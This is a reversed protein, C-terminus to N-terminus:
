VVGKMIFAAVEEPYLPRGDYKLFSTTPVFGCEMRLLKGLQGTSNNELLLYPKQHALHPQVAPINLPFLHTFHLYAIRKQEHLLQQAALAAGKTSGWGVVIVEAEEPSGFWTPAAWDQELYTAVKRARKNVQSIRVAASESTHSDPLHEYSNAQYFTGAFGPTLRPSIGDESEAYRLYPLPAATITKGQRVPRNFIANLEETFFSQHSESLYKDSLVIVPTQYVEALDFAKMTLEIMEQCDGPALIIKPFEGHGAFTAFLLDGQETWTPMGTAPGPRQAVFVVLPLEAVGAYSLTEAMLAFGGGSTGTAARVGAFSAGLVENVVGIEDEAHRVVMQSADQWAALNSLVGSSPSMPYAAFLRCDAAVAGLAFADNGMLVAQKRTEVARSFIDRCLGSFHEQVYHFGASACEINKSVVEPSKKAFEQTILETLLQLPGGLLALSAGIAIMNLMVSEAQLSAIIEAMPLPVHQATTEPTFQAPDFIVCSEATLREAHLAFTEANLCVLYDVQRRTATEKQPSIVVEYTNHGGRILSPYELYDFIQLGARTALKSMTLGTTLVGFGAPAGIKWVIHQSEAM